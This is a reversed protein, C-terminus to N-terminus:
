MEENKNQKQKQLRFNQSGICSDISYRLFAFVVHSPYYGHDSTNHPLDPGAM